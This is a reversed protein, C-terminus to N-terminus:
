RNHKIRWLLSRVNGAILEAFHEDTRAFSLLEENSVIRFRCAPLRGYEGVIYYPMAQLVSDPIFLLTNHATKHGDLVTIHQWAFFVCGDRVTPPLTVLHSGRFYGSIHPYLAGRALKELGFRFQYQRLTRLAKKLILERTNM